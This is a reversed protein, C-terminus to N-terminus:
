SDASKQIPVPFAETHEQRKERGDMALIGFAGLLVFAAQFLWTFLYGVPGVMWGASLPGLANGSGQVFMVFSNVRGLYRPPTHNAVFPRMHISNLIEGFTFVAGTLMFMLMSNSFAFMMYSIGFVAGSFAMVRLPRCHRTLGTLIPTFLVVILANLATVMSYHVAGKGGYLTGLQLPLLFSWQSYTFCYSFNFLVVMLLVPLLRLLRFVSIRDEARVSNPFEANERWKGERVLVALLLTSILTTGGDLLFMLQLHSQFLLGALVPSVMYGINIGLYILSFSAQRKQPSSLDATMADYAPMAATYLDAALTICPIMLSPQPFLGCLLYFFSGFTQCFVLVKKRGIWDALKGGLIVSPAQTLILFASFGGARAPSFGLKQTLILTLLPQIFGGICSIVRAAFLIYMERPLNAYPFKKLFM